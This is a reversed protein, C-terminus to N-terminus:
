ENMRGLKASKSRSYIQSINLDVRKIYYLGALTVWAYNLVHYFLAASLADSAGIGYSKLALIFSFEITGIYGPASPLTVGIVSFFLIMFGASLPVRLHLARVSIMFCIVMCIWQTISTIVIGVLWIPYKIASLSLAAIEIQRMIKERLRDRLSRSIKYVFDEFKEPWVVFAGIVVLAGASMFGIFYGKKLLDGEQDVGTLIAVAVLLVIALFDFIRELVLTELISVIRLKHQKALVYTRVLEGLHAPFINNSMAGIMISPFVEKTKLSCIPLLLIRWRVARLLFFLGYSGLLPFALWLDAEAFAREIAKLSVGRISLFMFLLSLAFGALIIFRRSKISM